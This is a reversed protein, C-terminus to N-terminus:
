TQQELEERTKGFILIDDMYVIIIDSIIEIHFIDDMFAQFTAPSNCLGFFMVMPEYLGKPTIFAGKWQDGDKIRINNYGSRLDLKTFYQM